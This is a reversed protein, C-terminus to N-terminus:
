ETDSSSGSNQDDSTEIKNESFLAKITTDGTINDLSKDWGSFTYSYEATSPKTPTSGNYVASTGSKIYTTYLTNGSDDVFTVLILKEYVAKVTINQTVNSYDTDWKYSYGSVSADPATAASGSVVEVIASQNADLGYVFTVKYKEPIACVAQLKVKSTVGLNFDFFNNTALDMWGKFIHESNSCNYKSSTAKKNYVLKQVSDPIELGKEDLFTVDIKEYYTVGMTLSENFQSYAKETQSKVYGAKKIDYDADTSKIINYNLTIGKEKAWSNVTDIDKEVANIYTFKCATANANEPLSCDIPHKIVKVDISSVLAVRGSSVSQWIVTGNELEKDYGEDDSEIYTINLTIGHKNAWELMESINKNVFVEVFDPMVEHEQKENYEEPLKISTRYVDTFNINLGEPYALSKDLELNNRILAVNDNISGQYLKYIWLRLELKTNYTWSAYGTIRNTQIDFISSSNDYNTNYVNLCYTILEKIQSISMNTSINDGAAEIVSLIDNINNLQLFKELLASIVEQQHRQRAFDGDAFHKRERIFALVEEGNAYYEGEPIWVTYNGRELSSNQGVFEKESNIVIGGLADVIDVVGQFNTEFYFNIDVDLLDEVTDILCQRSTRAANIKNNAGGYCAIPVFSDRAISTLTVDLTNPNFSALMLVDSNGSNMSDIGIILVTFPDTLNVDNKTSTSITAKSDYSYVLSVKKINEDQGDDETFSSSFSPAVAAVDIDQNFLALLLEQYNEYEKYSVKLGLREIEARALVNGELVQDNDLVGVTKGNLYDSGANEANKDDFAIFYSTIVENKNVETQVINNLSNTLSTVVKLGYGGLFIILVSFILAIGKLIKKKRFYLASVCLTVCVLLLAFLICDAALVIKTSFENFHFLKVFLVFIVIVAVVCALANLINFIDLSKKSNKKNM